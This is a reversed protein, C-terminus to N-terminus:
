PEQIVSPAGADIAASAIASLSFWGPNKGSNVTGEGFRHAFSQPCVATETSDMGIGDVLSTSTNFILVCAGEAAESSLLGNSLGKM